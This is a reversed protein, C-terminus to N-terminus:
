FKFCIESTLHVSEVAIHVHLHVEVSIENSFINQFYQSKFRPGESEHRRAQVNLEEYSNAERWDIVCGQNSAKSLASVLVVEIIM